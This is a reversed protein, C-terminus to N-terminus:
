KKDIYAKAELHGPYRSLVALYAAVADERKNLWANARAHYVYATADTPYLNVLSATTRAMASWDRQGEQAVAVRLLGIYNNPALELAARASQEAERWRRQALLPLTVGLRADVSKGNREIALRYDRISENFSGALYYLWGRRLLKFEADPGNAPVPDLASVAEAYKSSAELQYSNQWAAEQAFAGAAGLMLAAVLSAALPINKM